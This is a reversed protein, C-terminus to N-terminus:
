IHVSTNFLMWLHSAKWNLLLIVDRETNSSGRTSTTVGEHRVNLVAGASTSSADTQLILDDCVLPLTLFTVDSLVNKSYCFEAYM